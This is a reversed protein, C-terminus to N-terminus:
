WLTAQFVSAPHYNKLNATEIVSNKFILLPIYGGSLGLIRFSKQALLQSTLCTNANLHFERPSCLAFLEKESENRLLVKQRGSEKQKLFQV